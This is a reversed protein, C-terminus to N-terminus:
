GRGSADHLKRFIGDQAILEAFTGTEAIRGADLVIIRNANRTASINQTITFTTRGKTLESLAANVAAEAEADLASTAEDLLVIRPNKLFM